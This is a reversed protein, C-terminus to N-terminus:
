AMITPGEMLDTWPFAWFHVLQFHILKEMVMYGLFPIKPFHLEYKEAKVLLHHTMLHFIITKTPESGM